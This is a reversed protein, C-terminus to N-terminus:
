RALAVCLRYNQVTLPQTSTATLAHTLTNKSYRNIKVIPAFLQQRALINASFYVVYPRL